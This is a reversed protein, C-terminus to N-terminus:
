PIWPRPNKRCVLIGLAFDRCALPQAGDGPGIDGMPIHLASEAAQGPTGGLEEQTGTSARVAVDIM